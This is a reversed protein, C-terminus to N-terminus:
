GREAAPPRLRRIEPRLTRLERLIGRITAWSGLTSTGVVRPFYRLGIQEVRLGLRTARALIEADIFSGESKLELRDLAARTLLKAAFNVDHFRVGLAFGVLRNYIGSIVSRRLGEGRNLRYAAVIDAGSADLVEIM